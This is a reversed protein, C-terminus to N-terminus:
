YIRKLVNRKWTNLRKMDKERMPRIERVYAAPKVMTEYKLKLEM